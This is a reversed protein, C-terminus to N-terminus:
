SWIRWGQQPGGGGGGFAVFPDTPVGREDKAVNSGAHLVGARNGGVRGDAFRVGVRPIHRGGGGHVQHMQWGRHPDPLVAVHITFGGPYVGLYEVAVAVEADRHAVAEVPLIAPLTGESPRDWSPPMWSGAPRQPPEPPLPEFFPVLGCAIRLNDGSRTPRRRV